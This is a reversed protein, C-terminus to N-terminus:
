TAHLQSTTSVLSPPMEREEMNPGVWDDQGGGWGGGVGGWGGGAGGRGV